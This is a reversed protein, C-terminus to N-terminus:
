NISSRLILSEALVGLCLVIINAALLEQYFNLRLYNFQSNTSIYDSSKAWSSKSIWM